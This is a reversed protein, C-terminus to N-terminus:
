FKNKYQNNRIGNAYTTYIIFRLNTNCCSQDGQTTGESFKIKTEGNILLRSLLTYSNQLYISTALCVININHLFVKKNVSNFTNAADVLLVTETHKEKYM